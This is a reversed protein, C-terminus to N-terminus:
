DGGKSDKPDNADEHSGRAIPCDRSIVAVFARSRSIASVFVLEAPFSGPGETPYPRTRVGESSLFFATAVSFARLERQKTLIGHAAESLRLRRHVVGEFAELGKLRSRLLLFSYSRWIVGVSRRSRGVNKQERGQRM